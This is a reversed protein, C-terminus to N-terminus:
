DKKFPPLMWELTGRPARSGANLEILGLSGKRVHVSLSPSDLLFSYLRGWLPEHGVLLISEFDSMLHLGEWVREPSSEPSLDRSEVIRERHDLEEAVITATQMARVLPSSVILKFEIDLQRAVGITDKLRKVGKSTLARDSDRGSAAQDEAIGHRLLYLKM